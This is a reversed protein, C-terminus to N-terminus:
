PRRQAPPAPPGELARMVEVADPDLGHPLGRGGALLGLATAMTEIVHLRVLTTTLTTAVGLAPLLRPAAATMAAVADTFTAGGTVHQTQFVWRLADLGQPGQPSGYELDWAWLVSGSWGMNWPVWDGHYCGVPVLMAADLRQATALLRDLGAVLDPRDAAAARGAAARTMVDAWLSTQALPMQRRPGLSDGFAALARLVRADQDDGVRRADDPLPEVVSYAFPGCRGVDLVRPLRIPSGEVDLGTGLQDLLAAETLVREGTAPDSAVKAFAVVTGREDLLQVTPKARPHFDRLSVATAVAGPVRRLLHRTIVADDVAADGTGAPVSLRLITRERQVLAMPGMALAALRRTAAVKTTRLGNHSLVMRRAAAARVPVLFRPATRNPIVRWAEVERYGAPIPGYGLHLPFPAAPFLHGLQARVADMRDTDHAGSPGLDFEVPQDASRESTSM